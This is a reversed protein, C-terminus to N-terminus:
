LKKKWEEKRELNLRLEDVIRASNSAYPIHKHMYIPTSPTSFIVNLAGM